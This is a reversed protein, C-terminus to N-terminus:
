PSPQDTAQSTSLAPRLLMELEEHVSGAPRLLATAEPSVSPRLLRDLSRRTVEMAQFEPLLRQAAEKMPLQAPHSIRLKALPKVASASPHGTRHMFEMAAVMFRVYDSRYEAEQMRGTTFSAMRFLKELVSWQRATFADADQQGACSLVEALTPVAEVVWAISLNGAITDLLPAAAYGRPSARLQRLVTRGASFRRHLKMWIWTASGGLAAASLTVLLWLAFAGSGKLVAESGGSLLTMLKVVAVGLLLGGGVMGLTPLSLLNSRPSGAEGIASRVAQPDDLDLPPDPKRRLHFM